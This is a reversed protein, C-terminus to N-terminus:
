VCFRFNQKNSYKWSTNGVRRGGGGWERKKSRSCGGARRWMRGPGGEKGDIDTWGEKKITSLAREVQKRREDDDNEKTQDAVRRLAPTLGHM